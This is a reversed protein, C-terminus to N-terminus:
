ATRTVGGQDRLAAAIEPYNHAVEKQNRTMLRVGTGSRISLCREGDLKREFLWGPDSFRDRTLPRGAGARALGAAHGAGDQAM